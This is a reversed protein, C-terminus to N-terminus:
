IFWFAVLFEKWRFFSESCILSLFTGRSEFFIVPLMLVLAVLMLTFSIYM